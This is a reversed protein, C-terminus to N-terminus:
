KVGCKRELYQKLQTNDEFRCDEGFIYSLSYACEELTYQEFPFSRFVGRLCESYEATKLASIYCGLRGALDDLLAGAM